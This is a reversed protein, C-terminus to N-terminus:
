RCRRPTPRSSRTPPSSDTSSSSSRSRSRWRSWSRRSSWTPTRSSRSRPPSPSGARAAGEAGGRQAQRAHGRSGDLARPAAPWADVGDEDVEVGVVTYGNRAFVEAIGAGMTGLGVVGITKFDRAMRRMRGRVRPGSITHGSVTAHAGAPRGDQRPCSRTLRRPQRFGSLRRTKCVGAHSLWTPVLGTVEDACGWSLTVGAGGHGYCHVVRGETELRVTPGCRACGSGTASAGPCRGLGPVLRTARQLIEAATEPSPTRSWDGDDDTGGVVVTDSRPVVYTPGAADLWWRDLDVGEVLVVQGRVPGSTWTAPWAARVSAPATSWSTTPRRCRPAPEDPDADRRARRAPGAALRLYVPMDIVPRHLVVRRRVGAAASAPWTPCRRRGM